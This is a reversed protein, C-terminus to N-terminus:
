RLGAARQLALALVIALALFVALPSSSAEEATIGRGGTLQRSLADLAGVVFDPPAVALRPYEIAVSLLSPASGAACGRHVQADAAFRRERTILVPREIREELAAVAVSTEGEELAEVTWAVRYPGLAPASQNPELLQYPEDIAKLGRSADLRAYRLAGGSPTPDFYAAVTFTAQPRLPEQGFRGEVWLLALCFPLFSLGIPWLLELARESSAQRQRKRLTALAAAAPAGGSSAALESIRERYWRARARMARLLRRDAVALQLATGAGAAALAAFAISGFPTWALTWGFVADLAPVLAAAAGPLLFLLLSVGFAASLGVAARRGLGARRPPVHPEAPLASADPASVPEAAARRGRAVAGTAGDVELREGSAIARMAGPLVVAPVGFDRCIIAGHSLAGGREVILARARALLPTWAPDTSACVLVFPRDDPPAAGPDDGVWAEGEGSGAALPTGRWGASSVAPAAAAPADALDLLSAPDLFDPLAVARAHAEDDRRERIRDLLAPPPAGGSEVLGCIETRELYFIWGDLGLRRDLELLGRRILDLGAMWHHKWNERWPLLGRAESLLRRLEEVSRRNGERALVAEIRAEEEARARLLKGRKEELDAEGSGALGAALRKVAEVDERWRPRAVDMEGAGRHGFRELFAEVSSEGRGVRRLAASEEVGIDGDLGSILLRLAMGGAADGLLRSLFDELEAHAMGAFLSLELAAAPFDGFATAIRHEVEDLLARAGMAALDQRRKERCWAEFAPLAERTFRELCEPRRRRARRAARWAVLLARLVKSPTAAARSWSSPPQSLLEPRAGLLAPDYAVLDSGFFLEAARELDAYVRGCVLELFGEAEVRKSPSYGLRRYLQLFGGRGRFFGRHLDWALPSPHSLTEDLNHRALAGRAGLRRQEGALYRRRADADRARKLARAQLLFTEGDKRAWEVDVPFGFRSELDVALAAVERAADAGIAPEAGVSASGILDLGPRAFRFRDPTERGSVLGEGLGRVAEVIVCPAGLDPDATFVVGATEAECLAQVTVATGGSGLVGKQRRYARARESEWSEFVQTVAAEIAERTGIGLVTDMMGPMSEAAGSRVAVRLAGRSEGLRKGAAAELRAIAAALEERLGEPWVRGRRYYEQCCEVAITFGPPVRLGLKAMLHLSGGKGGLLARLRRADESGTEVLREIGEVDSQGGGFHYISGRRAM